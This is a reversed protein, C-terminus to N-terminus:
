GIHPWNGTLDYGIMFLAAELGRLPEVPYPHPRTKVESDFFSGRLAATLIWNARVNSKLHELYSPMGSGKPFRGISLANANPDRSRDDYEPMCLLGLEAPIPGVVGLKASYCVWYRVIMLGLAAAVRSDYIIFDKFALSYIKTFGANSRLGYGSGVFPELNLTHPQGFSRRCVDLYGLFGATLGHLHDIANRNAFRRNTGGWIQIEKAVAVADAEGGPYGLKMAQQLRARLNRLVIANAAISDYDVSGTLYRFESDVRFRYRRLADLLHDCQWDYGEKRHRYCHRTPAGNGLLEKLFKVFGRVHDNELYQETTMEDPVDIQTISLFGDRSEEDGPVAEINDDTM